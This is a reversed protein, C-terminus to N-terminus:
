RPGSNPQSSGTEALTAELARRTLGVERRIAAGDRGREALEDDIGELSDIIATLVVPHEAGARRIPPISGAVYNDISPAHPTALRVGTAGRHVRVPDGALYAARLCAALHRVVDAATAPDNIGSSLARLAIDILQRFGLAPDQEITRQDGIAVSDTVLDGLDGPDSTWVTMLRRGESVFHGVWVDLRVITEPPLMALLEDVAIEQIFGSRNARVATSESTEDISLPTEDVPPDSRRPAFAAVTRNTIRRITDDVRLQRTM